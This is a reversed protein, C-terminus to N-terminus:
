RLSDLFTVIAALVQERHSLFVYHSADRIRVARGRKAHREFWAAQRETMAEDFRAFGDFAERHARDRRSWPGPDHPAAFIALAPVDISTFRIPAPPPAPVPAPRRAPGVAGAPTMERTARIEAEPLAYGFTRQSWRRYAATDRLDSEEPRPATATIMPTSTLEQLDKELESLSDEMVTRIAQTLEAPPRPPGTLEAELRDLRQRLARANELAGPRHL